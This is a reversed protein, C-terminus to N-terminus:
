KLAMVKLFGVFPILKMQIAIEMIKIKSFHNKTNM